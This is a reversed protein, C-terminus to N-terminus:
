DAFVMPNVLSEPRRGMLALAANRAASERLDRLSDESYYAMHPTCIVNEM